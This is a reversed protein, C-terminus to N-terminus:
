ETSGSPHLIQSIQEIFDTYRLSPILANETSLFYLRKNCVAPLMPLEEWQARLAQKNAAVDVEPMLEIICEPRRTIISEISVEPYRMDLDGFVNTGGAIDLMESLFTGRGATLINALRQPNRSVTLLVPVKPGNATRRRISDLRKAFESTLAEAQQTRGLLEGLEKVTRRLEDFSDTRDRYLRINHTESLRELSDHNGRTVLLDPRLAIIGELDPDYLGGVQVRTKLEPPYVCFKSVGVISDCAGLACIIEATSPAIAVIRRPVQHESPAQALLRTALAIASIGLIGLSITPAFSKVVQITVRKGYVAM